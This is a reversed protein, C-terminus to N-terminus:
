DTNVLLVMRYYRPYTNDTPTTQKKYPHRKTDKATVSERESVISHLNFYVRCDSRDKAVPIWHGM